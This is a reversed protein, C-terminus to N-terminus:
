NISIISRKKHINKGHEIKDEWWDTDLVVGGDMVKRGGILRNGNWKCDTWVTCGKLHRKHQRYGYLSEISDRNM